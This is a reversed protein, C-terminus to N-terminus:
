WELKADIADSFSVHKSKNDTPPTGPRPMSDIQRESTEDANAANVATAEMGEEQLRGIVDQVDM